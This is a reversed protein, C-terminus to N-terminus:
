AVFRKLAATRLGALNLALAAIAYTILGCSITAILSLVPNGFNLNAIWMTPLVMFVTAAIVKALSLWKFYARYAFQTLIMGFALGLIESIVFGWAAGLLQFRPILILMAIANAALIFTDHILLLFPKEALHFSVQVFHQSLAHFLWAFALIPILVSAADRFEAGLVVNAMHPAVLALGVVAPLLAVLLLEGHQALNELAVKEGSDAFSRIVMPVLASSAAFAPFLIIQRVLDATAGYEGAAVDGLVYSVILRDLAGHMAFVIGSFAMPLGYKLMRRFVVPDFSSIAGQWVTRASFLMSLLYAGSIGMLLGAGGFGLQVFVFSLAIGCGARVIAGHMYADPQQRARLLEQGFDFLGLSVAVLAALMVLWMPSGSILAAGLVLVPVTAASLALGVMATLRVDARGESEFRLISVRIWAFMLATLIGALSMGIIYVGYEEPSLLRTFLTVSLFGIVATVGHALMYKSTQRLM